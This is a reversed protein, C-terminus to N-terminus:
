VFTGTAEAVECGTIRWAKDKQKQLTYTATWSDGGEDTLQVKLIAKSAEGHPQMFTASSPRYVVQYRNRVMALFNEASGIQQRINPAAYSFALAADDHAFADLQAQVVGIIAKQDKANLGGASASVAGLGVCAVLLLQLARRVVRGRNGAAEHGM